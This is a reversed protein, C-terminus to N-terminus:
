GPPPPSLSQSQYAQSFGQWIHWSPSNSGAWQNDKLAAAIGAVMGGMKDLAVYRPLTEMVISRLFITDVDEANAFLHRREVCFRYALAAFRTADVQELSLLLRLLKDRNQKYASALLDLAADEDHELLTKVAELLTTPVKAEPRFRPGSEQRRKPLRVLSDFSSRVQLLQEIMDMTDGSKIIYGNAGMEYARNVDLDCDSCTLMLIVLLRCRPDARIAQLTQLGDLTGPMRIDLLVVDPYPFRSRDTFPAEGALYKLCDAGSSVRHIRDPRNGYRVCQEIIRAHDDNDEVLLYTLIREDTTTM